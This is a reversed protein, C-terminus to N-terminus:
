STNKLPGNAMSIGGNELINDDTFVTRPGKDRYCSQRHRCYMLRGDARDIIRNGINRTRKKLKDLKTESTDAGQPETAPSTGLLKEIKDIREELEQNTAAWHCTNLFDLVAEGHNSRLSLQAHSPEHSIWFLQFPTCPETTVELTFGLLEAIKAYREYGEPVSM